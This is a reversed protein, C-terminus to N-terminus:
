EWLQPIGDVYHWYNGSDEPRTESYFYINMTWWVDHFSESIKYENWQAESGEYYIKSFGINFGNDNTLSTIPLGNYHTPLIINKSHFKTIFGDLNYSAKDENLSCMYEPQLLVIGSEYWMPCGHTYYAEMYKSNYWSNAKEINFWETENGDYYCEILSNCDAFIVQGLKTVSKPIKFYKINCGKFAFNGISTVTEPM